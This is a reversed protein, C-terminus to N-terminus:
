LGPTVTSHVETAAYCYTADEFTVGIPKLYRQKYRYLTYTCKTNDRSIRQIQAHVM